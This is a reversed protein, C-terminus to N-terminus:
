LATQSLYQRIEAKLKEGNFNKFLKIMCGSIMPNMDMGQEVSHTDTKFGYCRKGLMYAMGLEVAAGEDPVRGDINMFVIDAKKVQM